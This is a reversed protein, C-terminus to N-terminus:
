WNIKKDLIKELLLHDQSYYKTLFNKDQSSLTIEDWKESKSKLYISDVPKLTKKFFNRLRHPLKNNYSRLMKKLKVYKKLGSASKVNISSNYIKFDFDNYFSKQIALFDCVSFMMQKCDSQLDKYSLVLINEKGFLNFYQQLYKAYNGQEL